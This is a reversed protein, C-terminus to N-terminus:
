SLGFVWTLTVINVYGDYPVQEIASGVGADTGVGSPYLQAREVEINYARKTAVLIFDNMLEERGQNFGDSDICHWNPVPPPFGAIGGDSRCATKISTAIFYATNGDPLNQPWAGLYNGGVFFELCGGNRLGVTQSVGTTQGPQVNATLTSISNFCYNWSTLSALAQFPDVQSRASIVVNIPETSGSKAVGSSGHAFWDAPTLFDATSYASSGTAFLLYFTGMSRLWSRRSPKHSTATKWDIM